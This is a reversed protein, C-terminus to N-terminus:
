IKRTDIIIIINKNDTVILKFFYKTKIFHGKELRWENTVLFAGVCFIRKKLMFFRGFFAFLLLEHV